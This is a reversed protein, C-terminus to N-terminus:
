LGLLLAILALSMLLCRWQDDILSGVLRSTLRYYGAVYPDESAINADEAQINANATDPNAAATDPNAQSSSLRFDEVKAVVADILERKQINSLTESARLMIRFPRTNAGSGSADDEPGLLAAYFNPIEAQMFRLRVGPSVFRMLPVASAVADADALSLVKALKADGSVRIARLEKQLVRIDRMDDRSIEQPVPIVIDWIGAGGLEREVVSYDKAIDSDPRFNKLFNAEIDSHSLGWTTLLTVLTALTITAYRYRIAVGSLMGSGDALWRHLRSELTQQRRRAIMSLILPAFGLLGLPIVTIGLAMMCGFQRVPAIQSAQLAFFGGATTLCTWFIPKATRTIARGAARTPPLGRKLYRRHAVALHLTSTVTVIMLVSTLISSVLSLSIGLMVLSARTIAVAWAIVVLSLVVWGFHRLSLMLVIALLAAIFQTLRLSDDEILDFADGILLSEGVVSVSQLGDAALADAEARIKRSAAEAQDPALMLVVAAFRYDASHTYGAFMRDFGRAVRNNRDFLAPRSSSFPLKSVIRELIAPSLIANVGDIELLRKGIDANRQVGEETRLNPEAYTLIVIPERGLGAQLKRQDTMVPDGPAFLGDITRDTSLQRGHWAALLGVVVSIAFLAGQYQLVWKVWNATGQRTSVRNKRGEAGHSEEIPSLAREPMPDDFESGERKAFPHRM